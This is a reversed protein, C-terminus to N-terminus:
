FTVFKQGHDRENIYIYIYIYINSMEYSPKNLLMDNVLKM